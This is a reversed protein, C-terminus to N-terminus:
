DIRDVKQQVQSTQDNTAMALEDNSVEFIKVHEVLDAYEKQAADLEARLSKVAEEHQENLLKYTDRKEVLERVEAELQNAETRYKIFSEHHLISARNLAQQAENFLCSEGVENM